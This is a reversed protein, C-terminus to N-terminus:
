LPHLRGRVISDGSHAPNGDDPEESIDVVSYRALDLDAPIRFEGASGDLLGLSVLGSTDPDMLWVERLGGGPAKLQVVVDRVGGRNEVRATGSAQWSPFPSLAAEAVVHPAPVFWLTTALAGVLVGVVLAAAALPWSRAFGSRRRAIVPGVDVVPPEPRAVPVAAVAATLGLESHIASWVSSPPQAIEVEGSARGTAVVRSLSELEASCRSCSGLHARQADDPATNELALLALTEEDLHMTM